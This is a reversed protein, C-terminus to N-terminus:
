APELLIGGFLFRTRHCKIPRYKIIYGNSVEMRAVSPLHPAHPLKSGEPDRDHRTYDCVADALPKVSILTSCCAWHFLDPSLGRGKERTVYPILECRRSIKIIDCYKLEHRLLLRCTRRFGPSKSAIPVPFKSFQQNPAFNGLFFAELIAQIVEKRHM